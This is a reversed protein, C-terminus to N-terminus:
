AKNQWNRDVAANEEVTSGDGRSVALEERVAIEQIADQM